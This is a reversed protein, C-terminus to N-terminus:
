DVDGGGKQRGWARRGNAPDQRIGVWDLLVVGVTAPDEEIGASDRGWGWAGRVTAPDVEPEKPAEKLCEKLVLELDKEDLDENMVTLLKLSIEQKDKLKNADDGLAWQKLMQEVQPPGTVRVPRDRM